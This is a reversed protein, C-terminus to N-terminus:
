KFGLILIGTIRVVRNFCRQSNNAFVSQCFFLVFAAASHLRLQSRRLSSDFVLIAGSRSSTSSTAFWIRSESRLITLRKSAPKSILGSLFLFVILNVVCCHRNYFWRRQHSCRSRSSLNFCNKRVIKRSETGPRM